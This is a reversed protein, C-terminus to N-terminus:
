QLTRCSQLLSNDESDAGLVGRVRRWYPHRRTRNRCRRQYDRSDLKMKCSGVTPTASKKDDYTFTLVAGFSWAPVGATIRKEGIVKGSKDYLQWALSGGRKWGTGETWVMLTDSDGAIAIRPHKRGKGEGPASV